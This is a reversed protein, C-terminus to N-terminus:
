RKEAILWKADTYVVRWNPSQELISALPLSRSWLV